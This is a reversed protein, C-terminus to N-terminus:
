FVLSFLKQKQKLKKLNTQTPTPSEAGQRHQTELHSLSSPITELTKYELNERTSIKEHFKNERIIGVFNQNEESNIKMFPLKQKNERSNIKVFQLIAKKERSNIKAFSWESNFKPAYIVESM